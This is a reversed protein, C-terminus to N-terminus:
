PYLVHGKQGIPVLPVGLLAYAEELDTPAYGPVKGNAHDGHEILVKFLGIGGKPAIETLDTIRGGTITGIRPRHGIFLDGPSFQVHVGWLENDLRIRGYHRGQY